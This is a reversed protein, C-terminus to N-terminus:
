KKALNNRVPYIKPSINAGCIACALADAADDPKPIKALGLLTQVMRQVQNKSARGYCAVAQKAQLPTIELLNVQHQASALLIVGRAHGISIATKANKFFFVQECVVLGPKYKKILKTTERYIQELRQALPKRAPTSIVGCTIARLSNKAQDIVGYGTSATGPDIGLIIM